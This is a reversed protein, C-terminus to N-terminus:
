KNEIIMKLWNCNYCLVQYGEPYGNRILWSYFTPGGGIKKRDENGGGHIHDICLFEVHTEPCHNCTLNGNSYHSLVNLKDNARRKQTKIKIAAANKKRYEHEREKHCHICESRPKGDKWYFESLEKVEGCKGTCRKRGEEPFLWDNAEMKRAEVEAARKLRLDQNSCDRCKSRFGDRNGKDPVYNKTTADLVRECKKCMKKGPSPHYKKWEEERRLRQAENKKDRQIKSLKRKCEICIPLLRSEHRVDRYFFEESNPLVEGCKTCAKGDDTM